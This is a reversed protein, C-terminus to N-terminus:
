SPIAKWGVASWTVGYNVMGTSALCVEPGAVTRTLFPEPFTLHTTSNPPAVITPGDSQEVDDSPSGCNTVPYSFGLAVIQVTFTSTPTPNVVTVSTIAYRTGPPDPKVSPSGDVANYVQTPPLSFSHAPLGNLNAVKTQLSGTTDVAATIGNHLDRVFVPSGTVTGWAGLPFSVMVAVVLTVFLITLHTGTFPGWTTRSRQQGNDAHM